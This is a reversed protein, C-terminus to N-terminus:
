RGSKTHEFLYDPIGGYKKFRRELEEDSLVPLYYPDYKYYTRLLKYGEMIEVRGWDPIRYTTASHLRWWTDDDGPGAYV